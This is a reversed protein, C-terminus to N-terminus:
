HAPCTTQLLQLGAIVAYGGVDGRLITISISQGAAVVINPFRVYQRGEQWVPQNQIPFDACSKIGYDTAGIQVDYKGEYGYLLLDYTGNPLAASGTGGQNNYDYGYYM